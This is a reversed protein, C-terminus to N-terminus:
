NKYWIMPDNRSWQNTDYIDTGHMTGVFGEKNPDISLAEIRGKYKKIYMMPFWTEYYPSYWLVKSPNSGVFRCQITESGGPGTVKLYTAGDEGIYFTFVGKVGTDDVGSWVGLFEHAFSLQTLCLFMLMLLIKKM